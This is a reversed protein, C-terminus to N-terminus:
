NLKTHIPADHYPIAYMTKNPTTDSTHCPTIHFSMTHYPTLPSCYDVVPIHCISLSLSKYAMRLEVTIPRPRCFDM